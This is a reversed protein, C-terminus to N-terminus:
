NTHYFSKALSESSKRMDGKFGTKLESYKYQKKAKYHINVSVYLSFYIETKRCNFKSYFVFKKISISCFQYMSYSKKNQSLYVSFRTLSLLFFM